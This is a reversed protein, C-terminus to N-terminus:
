VQAWRFALYHLGLKLMETQPPTTKNTAIRSYHRIDSRQMGTHQLMLTFFRSLTATASSEGQLANVFSQFIEPSTGHPWDPVSVFRPTSGVLVLGRIRQQLGPHQVLLQMALMGGLSWGVLICPTEPLQQQLTAIWDDSLAAGDHGPLSICVADGFQQQFHWVNSSQAWGHIFRLATM